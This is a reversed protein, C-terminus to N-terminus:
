LQKSLHGNNEVNKQKRGYSESSISYDLVGILLRYIQVDTSIDNSM